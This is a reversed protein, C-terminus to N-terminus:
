LTLKYTVSITGGAPVSVATFTDRFLLFWFRNVGDDLYRARLGAETIDAAADLTISVAWSIFDTGLTQTPTGSKVFAGLKYDGRTPATTGTGVAIQVGHEYTAYGFFYTGSLCLISRSTGAEDVLTRHQTSATLPAMVGSLLNRFNNLILDSQKCRRAIVKGEANRVEVTLM